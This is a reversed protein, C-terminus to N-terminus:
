TKPRLLDELLKKSKRIGRYDCGPDFTACDNPIGGFQVCHAVPWSLEQRKSQGDFPRLFARNADGRRAIERANELDKSIPTALFPNSGDVLPKHTGQEAM